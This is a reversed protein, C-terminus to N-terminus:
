SLFNAETDPEERRVTYSRFKFPWKPPGPDPLMLKTLKTGLVQIHASSLPKDPDATSICGLEQAVSIDGPTSLHTM